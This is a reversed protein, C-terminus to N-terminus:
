PSVAFYGRPGAIHTGARKCLVRLKHYKGDRVPAAFTLRYRAKTADVADRIAKEVDADSNVHIQGGTLDALRAMLYARKGVDFDHLGTATVALSSVTTDSAVAEASYHELFPTYDMCTGLMAAMDAAKPLQCAGTCTGSAYTGMASSIVNDECFSRVLTAVGGTIWLMTKPGTVASFDDELESLRRFTQPARWAELPYDDEQFGHAENIAHMLLVRIEKTWPVDDLMEHDGRGAISGQEIASAQGTGHPRVPYLDGEPTLLYLYIGEDTELPNLVKSLRNAIYERRSWATNMLDFLIVIPPAFSKLDGAKRDTEEGGDPHDQSATREQLAPASRASTVKFSIISQPKEEDLIQFDESTLDTVSHGNSDLASLNVIVEDKKQARNPNEERPAAPTV